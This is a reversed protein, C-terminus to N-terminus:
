QFAARVLKDEKIIKRSEDLMMNGKADHMAYKKHAFMPKKLVLQQDENVVADLAEKTYCQHQFIWNSLDIGNKMEFTNAKSSFYICSAIKEKSPIVDIANTAGGPHPAKKADAELKNRIATPGGYKRLEMIKSRWYDNLRAKENFACDTSCSANNTRVDHKLLKSVCNASYEKKCNLHSCCYFHM